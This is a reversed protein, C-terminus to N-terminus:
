LTRFIPFAPNHLDVRQALCSVPCVAPHHPRASLQAPQYVRPCFRCWPLLMSCVAELRYCLQDLASQIVNPDPGATCVACSGIGDQMGVAAGSDASAGPAPCQGCSPSVGLKVPTDDERLLEYESLGADAILQGVALAGAKAKKAPAEGEEKNTAPKRKPAM